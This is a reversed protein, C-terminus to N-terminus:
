LWYVKIQLFAVKKGIVQDWFPLFTRLSLGKGLLHQSCFPNLCPFLYSRTLAPSEHNASQQLNTSRLSRYEWWNWVAIVTGHHPRLNQNKLWSEPSLRHHQGWPSSKSSWLSTDTIRMPLCPFHIYSGTLLFEKLICMGRKGGCPSEFQPYCPFQINKFLM